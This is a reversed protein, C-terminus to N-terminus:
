LLDEYEKVTDKEFIEVGEKTKPHQTMQALLSLPVTVVHAGVLASERIHRTTRISASLVQTKYGQLVLVCQRVLEIGSVIGHDELAHAGVYWGYSPFHHKPDSQVGHLQKIYDEQRGVFPSVYTAGAKAALLAQEPTFILTVNVPIKKKSLHKIVGLSDFDDKNNHMPIKIVVMNSKTSFTEYLRLAQSIMQQQTGGKVELSVPKHKLLTLIKKIYVKMDKIKHKKAAKKILSPNTTIGDIIQQASKIEDIDASDLFLKM